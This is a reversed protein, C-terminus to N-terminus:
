KGAGRMRWETRRSAISDALPASQQFSINPHKVFKLCPMCYQRLSGPKAAFEAGCRICTKM